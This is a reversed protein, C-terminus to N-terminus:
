AGIGQALTRTDDKFLVEVKGADIVRLVVGDGFKSHRLLDGENFRESIRYPRFDKLSKGAISKEWSQTREREAQAARTEKAVRPTPASRGTGSATPSSKEGPMRPRYNHHSNCTSCEVRVPTTGVMAIIRHNLIMKCKTCYSDVEGGTKLAKSM